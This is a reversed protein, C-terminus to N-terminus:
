GRHRPKLARPLFGYHRKFALSFNAPYSYGVAYAIESISHEGARLMTSARRMRVDLVFAYITTGTLHRFAQKLQTGSMGVRRALARISPPKGYHLALHECADAVAQRDRASFELVAGERFEADRAESTVRTLIELCKARLFNRQYGGSFLHRSEFVERATELMAPSLPGVDRAIESEMGMLPKALFSPLEDMSLGLTESIAEPFFHLVIFKTPAGADIFYGSDVGCPHYSNFMGPGTVIPNGDADLLKGSCVLRVKFVNEGQVPTWHPARYTCDTISLMVYPAPHFFDWYGDGEQTGLPQRLGMPIPSGHVDKTAGHGFLHHIAVVTNAVLNEPTLLLDRGASGPANKRRRTRNTEDLM